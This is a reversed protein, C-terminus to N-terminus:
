GTVTVALASFEGPDNELGVGGRILVVLTEGPRAGSVDLTVSFLESAEASGGMAIETDLKDTSGAIFVEVVILAEFGRGRGVVDLLGAPVSDLPSPSLITMADNVASLVFWGDSPGVQRLVLTSRTTPQSGEGLLVQIEGSRSDTSEFAGLTPLVGFAKLLFDTAAQEPTNFVVGDAPWMAVPTPSAM